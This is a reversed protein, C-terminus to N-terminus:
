FNDSFWKTFKSFAKGLPSKNASDKADAMDRGALEEKELAYLLMGAATSFAPGKTAEAMGSIVQPRAIRVHKSFVHGALEKIGQIQSSGGTIVIRPGSIEYLGRDDLRERVMELIEEVRPKIISTLLAKSLNSDETVASGEMDEDSVLDDLPIDIMEHKDNKTSVVSGYLTKIREAFSITTSLGRAIDRTVHMGGLPVSDTFTLSGSAFMAISTNGAGIDLLIVGLNKEDETLCALGSAYPSTIYDEVDLHCNALCNSLNRIATTSATVVHLETSLREGYMGRPEKIGTTDDITYDIPICHIIENSRRDFNQNGQNIIHNIDRDTVKHGSIRAEVKIMHSHIFSGSVNVVAQEITDGSMEEAAHVAALICSEAQKIDTIVGARIGQSLQHGIGTINLKGASNVRAIFCVVKSSGVDLVAIKESKLM